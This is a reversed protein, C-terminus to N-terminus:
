RFSARFLALSANTPARRINMLHRWHMTSDEKERRGNRRGEGGGEWRGRACVQDEAVATQLAAEDEMQAKRLAENSARKSARNHEQQALKEARAKELAARKEDDDRAKLARLRESEEKSAARATKLAVAKAAEEEAVEIDHAAKAEDRAQAAAQFAAEASAREEETADERNRTQELWKAAAHHAVKTAKAKAKTETVEEAEAAAKAAAAKADEETKRQAGRKKATEGNTKRELSTDSSAQHQLSSLPAKGRMRSHTKKEALDKRAQALKAAHDREMRAMAGLQRTLAESKKASDVLAVQLEATKADISELEAQRCTQLPPLHDSFCACCM